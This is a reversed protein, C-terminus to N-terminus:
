YPRTREENLLISSNLTNYRLDSLSQGYILTSSAPDTFEGPLTQGALEKKFTM